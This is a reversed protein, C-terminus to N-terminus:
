RLVSEGGTLLSGALTVRCGFRQAVFRAEELEPVIVTLKDRPISDLRLDGSLRWERETAWDTGAATNLQFLHRREEPLGSYVDAEGYIVAQAGLEELCKRDVSFGYPEFSWRILGKRWRVLQQIEGPRCETWSVVPRAGRTLKGSARIRGEELIRILTDFGTHGASPLGNLISDLYAWFSEGPWPGPCSRTYHILATGQEPWQELVLPGRSDTPASEPRCQAPGRPIESALRKEVIAKAPSATLRSNSEAPPDSRDEALVTMHIPRLLARELSSQMTGGRRVAGVFIHSCLALCVRDREGFREASGPVPGPPFPSLFLTLDRRFLGEKEVLFQAEKERSDMFPLVGDCGMLLVSGCRTALRSLLDYSLTGYSSVISYSSTAAEHFFSRLADIWLDGPTIRRSRRSNVVTAAQRDLLEEPGYGFLIPPVDRPHADGARLRDGRVVIVGKRQWNEALFRAREVRSRLFLRNPSPAVGADQFASAIADAAASPNPIDFPAVLSAILSRERATLEASTALLAATTLSSADRDREM